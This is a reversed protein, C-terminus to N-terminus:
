KEGLFFRTLLEAMIVPIIIFSIIVIFMTLLQAGSPDIFWIPFLYTNILDLFLYFFFLSIIFFLWFAIVRKNM